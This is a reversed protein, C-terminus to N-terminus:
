RPSSTTGSCTAPTAPAFNHDHIMSRVHGIAAGLMFISFAIIAALMYDRDFSSATVGLVGYAANALGVEWQFPSTAWGISEATQAPMFLHGSGLIIGNIGILWLVGVELATQKWDDVGSALRISLDIVFGALPVYPILGLLRTGITADAAASGTSM